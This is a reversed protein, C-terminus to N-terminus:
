LVFCVDVLANHSVGSQWCACPWSLDRDYQDSDACPPLGKARWDSTSNMGRVFHPGFLVLPGHAKDPM